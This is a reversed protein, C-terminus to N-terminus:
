KVSESPTLSAACVNSLSTDFSEHQAAQPLPRGTLAFPRVDPASETKRISASSSSLATCLLRRASDTPLLHRLEFPREQRDDLSRSSFKRSTPQHSRARTFQLIPCGGQSQRERFGAPVPFHAAPIGHIASPRSDLFDHADNTFGGADRRLTHGGSYRSRPPTM